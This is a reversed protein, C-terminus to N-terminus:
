FTVDKLHCQFGWFKRFMLIFIVTTEEPPFLTKKKKLLQLDFIVASAQVGKFGIAIYRKNDSVSICNIVDTGSDGVPIIRQTKREFNYLIISNGVPYVVEMEDLYTIADRVDGKLGFVFRLNSYM